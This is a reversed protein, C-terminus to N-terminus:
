EQIEVVRDLNEVFSGPAVGLARLVMLLEIVNLKREGNEIKAVFSQPKGIANALQEQTFSARERAAKLM